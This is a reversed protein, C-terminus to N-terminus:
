AARRHTGNADITLYPKGSGIKPPATAKGKHEGELITIRRWNHAFVEVKIKGARALESVITTPFDRATVPCRENALAAKIIREFVEGPRPTRRM